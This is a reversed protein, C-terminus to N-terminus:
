WNLKGTGQKTIALDVELGGDDKQRVGTCCYSSDRQVIVEMEDFHKQTTKGNWNEQEGSGGHQSFPEAYLAQTGRPCFIRLTVPEEKVFGDSSTASCSMFGKDTGCKGVLNQAEDASAYIKDPGKLGFMDRLAIYDVGRSLWVDKKTRSQKIAKTINNIDHAYEPIHKEDGTDRLAQNWHEYMTGTYMVLSSKEDYSLTNWVKGCESRFAHDAEFQSDYLPTQKMKSPSIDFVEKSFNPSSSNPIFIRSSTDDDIYDAVRDPELTMGDDSEFMDDAADYTFSIPDYDGSNWSLIVKSKDPLNHLESASAKHLISVKKRQKSFSSYGSGATGQRNHVGGGKKSGGVEGKRGEHGWNGSGPGGDYEKSFSVISAADDQNFLVEAGFERM